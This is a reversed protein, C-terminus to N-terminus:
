SRLLCQSLPRSRKWFARVRTPTCDFSMNGDSTIRLSRIDGQRLGKLLPTVIDRDLIKLSALWQEPQNVRRASLLRDEVILANNQYRSVSIGDRLPKHRNATHQCLSQVYDGGGICCDYCAGNKAPIQGLGWFWLSNVPQQGHYQRSENVMSQNLVMQTENFLTHWRRSDDGAPLFRNVPKMIVEYVPTCDLAPPKDQFHLYWRHTHPAYFDAGYAAFLPMLSDALEDREAITIGLAQPDQMILSHTDPYLFVPDARMWWGTTGELGDMNASLSAFPIRNAQCDSGTFQRYLWEEHATVPHEFTKSRTLLTSLGSLRLQDIDDASIEPFESFLAPVHLTVDM